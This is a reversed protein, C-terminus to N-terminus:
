SQPTKIIVVQVEASESIEPIEERIYTSYKRVKGEGDKVLLLSPIYPNIVVFCTCPPVDFFKM